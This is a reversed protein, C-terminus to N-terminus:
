FRNMNSLSFCHTTAWSQTTKLLPISDSKLLCLCPFQITLLENKIVLNSPAM